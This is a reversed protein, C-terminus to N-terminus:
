LVELSIDVSDVSHTLAGISVMDIGCSAVKKINSLTIGGSAELKPRPDAKSLSFGNRIAVAKKMEPISMNDLMIVDPNLILADKLENLNKVELEIKYKRLSVDKLLRAVGSFGGVAELHNDKILIMEDLRMRHNFGGGIRVAYKELGRLGPITKRTDVIKVKYPKVAQIYQRTKTAIGSLLCLYNLAVREATLIPRAKGRIRAIVKGKRVFEGDHTVAKFKIGKDKINLVRRVIDLGCVVCPEKAILVANIIKGPAVALTTTIDGRGIDEKLAGAIGAFIKKDCDM